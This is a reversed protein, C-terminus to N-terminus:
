TEVDTEEGTEQAGSDLELNKREREEVIQDMAAILEPNDREFKARCVDSEMFHEVALQGFSGCTRLEYELAAVECAWRRVEERDAPGKMRKSLPKQKM